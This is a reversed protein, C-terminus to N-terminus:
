CLLFPPFSVTNGYHTRELIHSLAVMSSNDDMKARHFCAYIESGKRASRHASRPCLRLSWSCFCRLLMEPPPPSICGGKGSERVESRGAVKDWLCQSPLVDTKVRNVVRPSAEGETKVSYQSGVPGPSCWTLPKFSPTVRCSEETWLFVGTSPACVKFYSEDM